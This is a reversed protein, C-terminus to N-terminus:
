FFGQNCILDYVPCEVNMAVSGFLLQSLHKTSVILITSLSRSFFLWIHLNSSFVSVHLACSINACQVSSPGNSCVRMGCVCCWNQFTQLQDFFFLQFLEPMKTDSLEKIDKYALENENSTQFINRVYWLDQLNIYMRM